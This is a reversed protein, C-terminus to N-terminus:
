YLLTSDRIILTMTAEFTDAIMNVRDHDKYVGARNKLYGIRHSDILYDCFPIFNIEGTKEYEEVIRELPWVSFMEGTMDYDRFGNVQTYFRYFDGPFIFELKQQTTLISERSAPNNLKLGEKRWTEIVNSDYSINEHAETLTNKLSARSRGFLNRFFNTM